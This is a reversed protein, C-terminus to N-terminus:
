SEARRKSDSAFLTALVDQPRLQRITIGLVRRKERLVPRWFSAIIVAIAMIAQIMSPPEPIPTLLVAHEVFGFQGVGTIQGSDNIGYGVEIRWGPSQPILTNLDIMGDAKDYLFAHQLNSIGNFDGTVEGSANIAFADSYNLGITGLDHIAGDWIFAHRLTDGPLWASGAVVGTANIAYGTSKTGGLTGLDHMMGDYVFAHDGLNGAINADGTVIGADNVARAISNRGGLTGIDHMTGDYVFAHSTAAATTDSEGVVKGGSNIGFGFSSNSQFQGLTGLDHMSGDYLFAHNPTNQCYGTVMGASNIALGTSNTTFPLTGLDHTTGDYLFAHSRSSTDASGTVWGAANIGYGVSDAGGLTGLDIVQYYPAAIARKASAGMLIITLAAVVRLTTASLSCTLLLGCLIPRILAEIPDTGDLLIARPKRRAAYNLARTRREFCPLLNM